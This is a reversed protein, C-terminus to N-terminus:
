NEAILDYLSKANEMESSIVRRVQDSVDLCSCISATPMTTDFKIIKSCCNKDLKLTM